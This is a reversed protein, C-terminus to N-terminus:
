KFKWVMWVLTLASSSLALKCAVFSSNALIWFAIAFIFFRVTLSAIFSINLICSMGFSRSCHLICNFMVKSVEFNQSQLVHTQMKTSVHAPLHSSDFQFTPPLFQFHSSLRPVVASSIYDLKQQFLFLILLTFLLWQLHQTHQNFSYDIMMSQWRVTHINNLKILLLHKFHM